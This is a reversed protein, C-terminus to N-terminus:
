TVIRVQFAPEFRVLVGKEPDGRVNLVIEAQAFYRDFKLFCQLFACEGFSIEDRHDDRRIRLNVVIQVHHIQSGVRVSEIPLIELQIIVSVDRRQSFYHQINGQPFRYMSAEILYTMASFLVRRLRFKLHQVLNVGHSIEDVWM